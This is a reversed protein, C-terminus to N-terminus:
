MSQNRLRGNGKKIRDKNKPDGQAEEPQGIKVIQIDYTMHRTEACPHKKQRDQQMGHPKLCHKERSKYLEIMCTIQQRRKIQLLCKVQCACCHHM